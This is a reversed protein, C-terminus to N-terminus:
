QIVWGCSEAIRRGDAESELAYAYVKASADRLLCVADTLREDAPMAEVALMAERIALEAPTMQDVRMRTPLVQSPKSEAAATATAETISM